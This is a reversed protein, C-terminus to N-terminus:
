LTLLSVNSFGQKEFFFKIKKNNNNQSGQTKTATGPSERITIIDKNIHAPKEKHHSGKSQLVPKLCAPKLIQLVCVQYKRHALKTARLWTSDEQVLSQLQTGQM